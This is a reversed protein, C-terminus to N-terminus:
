ETANRTSGSSFRALCLFFNAILFGSLAGWAAAEVTKTTFKKEHSSPDAYNSFATMGAGFLTLWAIFLIVKAKTSCECSENCSRSSGEIPSYSSRALLAYGNQIGCM